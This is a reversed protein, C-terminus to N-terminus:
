FKVYRDFFQLAREAAVQWAEGFEHGEGAYKFFEARKDLAQLTNFVRESFDIPVDKDATGHHLQIPAQISSFYNLPSIRDYIRRAEEGLGYIEALRGLEQRPLEYFNDEVRASLPAFLVYARVEPRLVAVRSAIGGGMSHGWMGIRSVDLLGSRLDKIAALLNIVDRTYGVYFDHPATGRPSSDLERPFAEEPSTAHYRYDPHITVYGNKAFFDQERRSGRGSFYIEPPILGHNLIIVPWGGAPSRGKPVNMVGTVKLNGSLYSVLFKRYAATEGELEKEIRFDKGQATEDRLTEIFYEAGLSYDASSPGSSASREEIFTEGINDEPASLLADRWFIEVEDGIRVDHKGAFGARTEFVYDAPADPRYIPLLVDSVGLAPEPVREELDVVRGNKIWFIDLPMKMGRMWIAHRGPEKFVFIMGGYEPLNERGALGRVRSQPDLALEALISVGNIEVRAYEKQYIPLAFVAGLIFASLAIIILIVPRFSGM